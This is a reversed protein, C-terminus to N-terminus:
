GERTGSRVTGGGRLDLPKEQRRWLRRLNSRHRAVILIATLVAFWFIPDATFSTRRHELLAVGPALALAAALSSASVIRTVAFVLTFLALSAGLAAPALVAWAGAAAAVGKGGRFGAWPSFTHGLVAAAMGLVGAWSAAPPGLLLRSVWVAAAGKGADLILVALGWSPGLVRYVNTAGLNGSGRRRVDLGRLRLGIWLGWPISGLLFASAVAAIWRTVM